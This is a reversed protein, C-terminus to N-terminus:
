FQFQFTGALGFRTDDDNFDAIFNAQFKVLSTAYHNWGLIIRESDRDDAEDFSLHDWRVLVENRDSLKIGATAYFGTITEDGAQGVREFTSQLFEAAGFFRDSDYDIFGGYIWRDDVSVFGTNGVSELVSNNFVANAGVYTTSNSGTITYGLKGLYMFNNDNTRNLGYGNFMSVTYDFDGFDGKASLGIERSNLMAGILRARSILATNGPGPMLDLGIDPKQAGAIIRFHDSFAYGVSLNIVSVQRNFEMQFDYSFGQDVNGRLRFRANSLGYRRGDNFNDDEFSYVGNTRVLVGLNLPETKFRETLEQALPEDAQAYIQPILLTFFFLASFLYTTFKM